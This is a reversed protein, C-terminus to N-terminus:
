AKEVWVSFSYSCAKYRFTLTHRGNKHTVRWDSIWGSVDPHKRMNWRAMVEFLDFMSRARRKADRRSATWGSYYHREQMYLKRASGGFLEEDFLRSWNYFMITYTGNNM